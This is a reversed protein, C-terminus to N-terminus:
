TGQYLTKFPDDTEGGAFMALGGSSQSSYDEPTENIPSSPIIVTQPSMADYPAYQQIAKLVGQYNSAQNIALLMERIEPHSEVSDNDIVIERGKEGVMALHPGDLTEGGKEYRIDGHGTMAVMKGSADSIEASKGYGGYKTGVSTKGGFTPLLIDAGEASKGFRNEDKKPIYYDIPLFGEKRMFSSHSHADFARQLLSSKAKSSASSDWVAGAVGANSFEIKRGRSAYANALKDMSSIMNGMGLSRHFKTDIHYATSGGIYESPGTQMKQSTVGGPINGMKGDMVMSSGLQGKKYKELRSNAYAVLTKMNKEPQGYGAGPLSAWTKRAGHFATAFDGKDIASLVHPALLKLAGIDQNSPSFDSLGLGDWTTSLFQYRGAADSRYKGSVQIKRPHDRYGSFQKGTFMTTYGNNPYNATGEAYALTDLFAKRHPNLSANAVGVGKMEGEFEEGDVGPPTEVEKDKKLKLNQQIERLTKQANTETSQKFTDSVWKSIDGGESIAELAKPDVLGGEAFAAVVGGKLKGADIGKSILLNIGLGVNEYDKQNPKQGLLIKSTVALIPGFYDSKGLNNGANQIVKFPNIVDLAKQAMKLPNPFLGFLKEEGGVDAGPSSIQVEGPKRAITRKYKGKRGGKSITRRAGTQKKGGRTVGGGALGMFSPGSMHPTRKQVQKDTLGPKGGFSRGVSKDFEQGGMFERAIDLALFAWGAVPIASGFSLLGGVYDGDKIRMIGEVIALGAGLFPVAKLAKSGVKATLKAAGKGGVRAATRTAVKGAGRRALTGAGKETAKKTGRDRLRDMGFDASAMGVIIALNMFKEFESTLKDLNKLAEEGFTKGVLGRSFDVAKYGIDIFTVLGDLLKGGIDLVLDTAKGIFKVIPIIKPLHDVLRVAFYGLIINGIFNKIWDFIGLRPAKPMKIKGKEADPKTELKEEQKERRQSSQQRKQNDLQKKQSALTGKLIKDIEIVKVSIIGINKQASETIGLSSSGKAINQSVKALSVSKSSPLFKQTNVAM